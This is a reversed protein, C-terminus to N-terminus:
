INFIERNVINNTNLNDHNTLFYIINEAAEIAMRKRCELSLAANHPSLLVNSFEFIPHNQNPPEKEFVDLAAGLIKNTKLVSVLADENIIGGRATNVIIASNKMLAFEDNSIFNKTDKNLPLHVSIYDALKIGENKNIPICKNNEIEKKDVFPDCVYVNTEFGLCRKALAKGIRGFGFIVINKKYLEFFNPLSSKNKFEGKKTLKDSLHINKTLYLFSTIVHEAVSVANSTGTIGLAIKNQNMYTLDLNDYGVGHRAIIKIKNCDKLINPTITATRLIIGDIDKLEKRLNNEDFNSIELTEFNSKELLNLGDSHLEGIIAIKM